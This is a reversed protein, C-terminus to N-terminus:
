EPCLCDECTEKEDFMLPHNCEKCRGYTFANEYHLYEGEWFQKMREAQEMKGQDILKQEKAKM